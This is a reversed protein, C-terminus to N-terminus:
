RTSAGAMVEGQLWAALEQFRFLVSFARCAAPRKRRKFRRILKLEPAASFAKKVPNELPNVILIFMNM